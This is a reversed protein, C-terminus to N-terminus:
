MLGCGSEFVVFYNRKICFEGPFHSNSKFDLWLGLWARIFFSEIIRDLRCGIRVRFFLKWSCEAQGLGSFEM